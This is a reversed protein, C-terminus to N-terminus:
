PTGEPNAIRENAAFHALCNRCLCDRYRRSIEERAAATLRVEECWCGVIMASCLFEQGCAECIKPKRLEPSTPGACTPMMSREDAPQQRLPLARPNPMGRPSSRTYGKAIRLTALRGRSTASFARTLRGLRVHSILSPRNARLGDQWGPPSAARLARAWGRQLNELSRVCPSWNTTWSTGCATKRNSPSLLSPARPMM